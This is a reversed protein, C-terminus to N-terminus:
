KPARVISQSQGDILYIASGGIAVAVFTGKAGVDVPAPAGGALRARVLGVGAATWYLQDGDVALDLPVGTAISWKTAQANGDSSKSARQITSNTPTLGDSDGFYVANADVAVGWQAGWNGNIFATEGGRKSVDAVAGGKNVWYVRGEDLM